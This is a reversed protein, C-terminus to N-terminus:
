RREITERQIPTRTGGGFGLEQRLRKRMEGLITRGNGYRAFWLMIIAVCKVREGMRLRGGRIARFYGLMLQTRPMPYRNEKRPDFWAAVEEETCNANLSTGGHLRRLFLYQPVEYFDGQLALKVLLVKDSSNFPQILGTRKLASRRMLGFVPYCKTIVTEEADVLCHALRDSASM